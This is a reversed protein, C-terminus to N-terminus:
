WFAVCWFILFWVIFAFTMVHWSCGRDWCRAWPVRLLSHSWTPAQRLTLCLLIWAIWTEHSLNNMNKRSEAHKMLHRHSKVTASMAGPLMSLSFVTEFSLPMSPNQPWNCAIWKVSPFQETPHKPTSKCKCNEKLMLWNAFIRLMDSQWVVGLELTHPSRLSLNQSTLFFYFQWSWELLSSNIRSSVPIHEFRHTIHKGLRGCTALAVINVLSLWSQRANLDMRCACDLEKMCATLTLAALLPIEHSSLKQKGELDDFLKLNSLALQVQLWLSTM